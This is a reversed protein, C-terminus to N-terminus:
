LLYVRVFVTFVCHFSFFVRFGFCLFFVFSHTHTHTHACVIATSNLLFQNPTHARAYKHQGALRGHMDNPINSHFLNEADNFQNADVFTKIQNCHTNCKYTERHAERNPVRQKNAHALKLYDLTDSISCRNM